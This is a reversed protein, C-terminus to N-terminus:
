YFITMHMQLPNPPLAGSALSNISIQSSIDISVMFNRDYKM